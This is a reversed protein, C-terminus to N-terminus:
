AGPAPAFFPSHHITFASLTDNRDRRPIKNQNQGAPFVVLALNRAVSPIVFPKPLKQLSRSLTAAFPFHRPFLSVIKSSVFGVM